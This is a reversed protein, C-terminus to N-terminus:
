VIAKYRSIILFYIPGKVANNYLMRQRGKGFLGVLVNLRRELEKAHSYHFFPNKSWLRKLHLFHLNRHVWTCSCSNFRHFSQSSIQIWTIKVNNLKIFCYLKKVSYSQVGKQDHEKEKISLLGFQSFWKNKNLSNEKRKPTKAGM